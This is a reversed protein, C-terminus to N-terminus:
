LYMRRLKAVVKAKLIRFIDVDGILALDIYKNITVEPERADVVENLGVGSDGVIKRQYELRWKDCNVMSEILAKIDVDSSVYWGTPNVIPTNRYIIQATPIDMLMSTLVITSPTTILADCKRMSDQFDSVKDFYRKYELLSERLKKDPVRIKLAFGLDLIEVILRKVISEVSLFEKDNFYPTNATALMISKRRGKRIGREEVGANKKGKYVFVNKRKTFIEIVPKDYETVCGIKNSLSFEYLAGCDSRAQFSNGWELIGDALFVTDVGGKCCKFLCLRSLIDYYQFSIVSDFRKFFSKDEFAFCKGRFLLECDVLDDLNLYKEVYKKNDLFLIRKKKMVGLM